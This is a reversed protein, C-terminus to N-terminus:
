ISKSYHLGISTFGNQQWFQQGLINEHYCNLEIINCGNYHAYNELWAILKKGVGQSRYSEQIYVNDPELHRGSYYKTLIWLGCVGILTNGHYIGVCKYQRDFMEEIRSTLTTKPIHPALENLMQAILPVDQIGLLNFEIDKM